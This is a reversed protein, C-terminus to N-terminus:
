LGTQWNYGRRSRTSDDAKAILPMASRPASMMILPRELADRLTIATATDTLGFAVSVWTGCYESLPLLYEEPVALASGNWIPLNLASLTSIAAGNNTRIKDYDAASLTEESGIIGLDTAVQTALDVESYTTM